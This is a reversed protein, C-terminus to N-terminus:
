RSRHRVLAHHLWLDLVDDDDIAAGDVRIWGPGMSRGEGMEARAAEPRDLLRGDDDPAVRVLLSRDKNVAVLMADDFMVAIAGFMAVERVAGEPLRREIRDLLERRADPQRM